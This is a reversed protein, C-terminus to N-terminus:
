SPEKPQTVPVGLRHEEDPTLTIKSDMSARTEKSATLEWNPHSDVLHAAMNYKWHTDGM